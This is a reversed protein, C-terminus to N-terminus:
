MGVMERHGPFEGLSSSVGIMDRSFHPLLAASLLPHAPGSGVRCLNCNRGKLTWDGARYNPFVPFVEIVTIM